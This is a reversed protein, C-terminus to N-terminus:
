SGKKGKEEKGKLQKVIKHLVSIELTKQSLEQKLQEIEKLHGECGNKLQLDKQSLEQKLRGIEELHDECQSKEEVKQKKAENLAPEETAARKKESAQSGLSDSVIKRIYISATGGSSPQLTILKQVRGFSDKELSGKLSEFTSHAEEPREFVAFASYKDGNANKPPKTELKYKGPIARQLEEIPLNVPIRHIFLKEIESNPIEQVFLIDGDIGREILALVLKMAACADDLCNHPAGVKRVECGLVSKCLNNLSPRRLIPEGPYKFIYSTDIVRAHDLKLAKLDNNLGHGVLITGHSLIKKLSNQVDALSCNVGDLDSATVGTIESRYDAITRDPKVLENLKVQLDRDVVCVRVLAETGDECLVMECDVAVMATSKKWKSKKLKMVVWDEDFSPFSYDLPYQPHEITLRVLRQELSENDPSEHKLQEVLGRNLHWQLVKMLFKVDNQDTFSNLFAVLIDKTRKSPDSISAGFKRDHANLFDKWAGKNSKMGRKQALKVIEVLVKRDTAALQEEM